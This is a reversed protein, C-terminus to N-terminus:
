RCCVKLGNQKLEEIKSSLDPLVKLNDEFFPYSSGDLSYFVWQGEKREKVLKATKLKRLHQSVAPQTMQLIEVLECVCLEETRLLALIRLRTKDAFAKFCEELVEIEM